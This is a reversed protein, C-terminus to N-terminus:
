TRGAEAIKRVGEVLKTDAMVDSVRLPQTFSLGDLSRARSLAVYTQGPSFAGYGLDIRVDDLTLGQAKHITMAWAPVIPFQTYTGVVVPNVRQTMRDYQYEISEWTAPHVEEESSSGDLQVWVASESLNSITGLSGNVWRHEPDNKVMMIRANKKLDLHEPAPLKDRTIRFDDEITGVFRTASGPLAALGQRNYELAAETRATLIVPKTTSRHQRHCRLNLRRVTDELREGNRVNHLLDLFEPDSQRYVTSLEILKLQQAFLCRAGFAHTFEYGRHELIPADAEEVIPPLQLFDGVLLLKRGGFPKDADLKVRLTKDVVDLLDARVMSIEDIVIIDIRRLISGLRHRPKIDDLNVIRPPIGFFKHITQGGANLAAIGTPAVVVHRFGEKKLSHILTTKGTGARGHLLVVPSGSKLAAILRKRDSSNPSSSPPSVNVSAEAHDDTTVWYLKITQKNSAM